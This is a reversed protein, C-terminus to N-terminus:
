EINQIELALSSYGIISTMLSSHALHFAQLLDTPNRNEDTLGTWTDNYTPFLVAYISRISRGAVNIFNMLVELMALTLGNRALQHVQAVEERTPHDPWLGPVFTEVRSQM